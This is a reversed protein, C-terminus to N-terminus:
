KFVGAVAGIAMTFLAAFKEGFTDCSAFDAEFRVRAKESAPTFRVSDLSLDAGDAATFEFRIQAVAGLTSNPAFPLGENGFLCLRSLDFTFLHWEGDAPIATEINMTGDAVPSYWFVSDVYFRINKITVAETGSNRVYFSMKSFDGYNRDTDLFTKVDGDDYATVPTVSFSNENSKINMCGDAFSLGAGDASWTSHFRNFLDNGTIHWVKDSDCDAWAKDAWNHRLLSSDTVFPAVPLTLAGNESAYLNSRVNTMCYAYSAACPAPVTNSYIKVTDASVIEADAEVFVGNDGCVAFGYPANGNFALSDGFNEFTVFVAGDRIETSKVTAATHSGNGGYVLNQAAFAMRQGIELKTDPHISGAEPLFSLSLDYITMMARSDPKELQIKCYSDNWNLMKLGDETYPFPAIQTFIFPMLSDAHFLETYSRQMLDFYRAYNETSTGNMLDSEGQYWIMGTPRLHTLPAIKHNYNATMDSYFDNADTAWKELPIYRGNETLANKAASDGDIAERSIWTALMTGGLAVNLFGVPIDLEKQLKEAFTYGVASLSYMSNDEGTFWQAGVIDNQPLAYSFGTYNTNDPYAPVHLARVWKNLKEGNEFQQKAHKAQSLPYMMNSQGGALWLEGFVVGTLTAFVASNEKLVVTYENYSGEPSTFSVTFTGDGAAIGKGNACLNEDKDFLEATIEAGATATGAFVAEKNQAFLMNDDYFAYLKATSDAAFATPLCCLTLTLCLILAFIKKM